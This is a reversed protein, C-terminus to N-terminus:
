ISVFFKVLKACHNVLELLFLIYRHVLVIKKPRQENTCLMHSRFWQGM